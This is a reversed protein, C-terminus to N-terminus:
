RGKPPCATAIRSAFGTSCACFPRSSRRSSGTCCREGEVRGTTRWSGVRASSTSREQGFPWTVTGEGGAVAAPEASWRGLGSGAIAGNLASRPPLHPALERLPALVPPTLQHLVGGRQEGLPAVVRRRHGVDHHAEAHPLADEVPVEGRLLLQQRLDQTFRLLVEAPALLLRDALLGVRDHADLEADAGRDLPEELVALVEREQLEARAGLPKSADQPPVVVDGD